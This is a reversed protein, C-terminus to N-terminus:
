TEHFRGFFWTFFQLKQSKSFSYLRGTEYLLPSDCNRGVGDTGRGSGTESAGTMKKEEEVWMAVPLSSERQLNM